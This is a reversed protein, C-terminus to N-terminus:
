DDFFDLYDIWAGEYWRQDERVVLEIVVEEKPSQAPEDLAMKLDSWREKPITQSFQQKGGVLVRLVFPFGYAKVGIRLFKCQGVNRMTTRGPGTQKGDAGVHSEKLPIAFLVGKRGDVQELYKLGSRHM